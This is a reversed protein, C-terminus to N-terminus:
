TANSSFGSWPLVLVFGSCTHQYHQHQRDMAALGDLGASILNGHMDCRKSYLVVLIVGQQQWIVGKQQWIVGKKQYIVSFKSYTASFVRYLMVCSCTLCSYLVRLHCGFLQIAHYIALFVAILIYWRYLLIANGFFLDSPQIAGTYLM